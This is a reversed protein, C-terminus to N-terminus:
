TNARTLQRGNEVYLGIPRFDGQYMGGNMAFQLSIGKGELDAALATFTRYLKGNDDRWFIRLDEKTPDFTCVIYSAGEFSRYRCPQAQAAESAALCLLITAFLLFFTSASTKSTARTPM